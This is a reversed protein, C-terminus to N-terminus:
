ESKVLVASILIIEMDNNVIWRDDCRLKLYLPRLFNVAFYLVSESYYINDYVFTCCMTM